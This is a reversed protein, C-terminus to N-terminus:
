GLGVASRTLRARRALLTAGAKEALAVALDLDARAAAPERHSRAAGRAILLDSELLPLGRERAYDLAVGLDAALPTEGQAVRARVQGAAARFLGARRRARSWDQAAVQFAALAEAPDGALLAVEGAEHAVAARLGALREGPGLAGRAQEGMHSAAELEGCARHVASLRFARAVPVDLADAAARAGPLDGLDTRLGALLDLCLALEGAGQVHARAGMALDHAVALEGAEALVGALQVELMARSAGPPLLDLARRLVRAAPAPRDDRRYSDAALGWAEIAARPDLPALETAVADFCDGAEAWRGAGSLARAAVVRADQMIPTM